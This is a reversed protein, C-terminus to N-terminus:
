SPETRQNLEEVHYVHVLYDAKCISLMIVLSSKGGGGPDPRQYTRAWKESCRSPISGVYHGTFLYKKWKQTKEPIIQADYYIVTKM